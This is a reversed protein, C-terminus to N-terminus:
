GANWRREGWRSPSMHSRKVFGASVHKPTQKNKIAIDFLLNSSQFVSAWNTARTYYFAGTAGEM